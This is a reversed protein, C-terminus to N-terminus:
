PKKFPMTAAGTVTDAGGYYLWWKGKFPVLANAVTTDATMGRKEWGLEPGLFPEPQDKLITM